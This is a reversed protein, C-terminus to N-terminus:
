AKAGLEVDHKQGNLPGGAVREALGARFASASGLLSKKGTMVQEVWWAFSVCLSDLRDRWVTSLYMLLALCGSLALVDVLGGIIVQFGIPPRGVGYRAILGPASPLLGYMVWTAFSRMMFSHILYMPFSISGLFVAYPHSLFKRLIPSFHIAFIFFM